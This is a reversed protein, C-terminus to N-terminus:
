HIMIKMYYRIIRNSAVNELMNGPIIFARYTPYVYTRTTVRLAFRAYRVINHAFRLSERTVCTLGGYTERAPAQDRLDGERSEVILNILTYIYKSEREPFTACAHIVQREKETIKAPESKATSM